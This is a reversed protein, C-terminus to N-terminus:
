LQAPRWAKVREPACYVNQMPHTCDTFRLDGINDGKVRRVSNDSLWVEAEILFPLGEHIWDM